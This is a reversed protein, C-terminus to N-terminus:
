HVTTLMKGIVVYQEGYGYDRMKRELGRRGYCRIQQCGNVTAWKELVDLYPLWLDISEGSALFINCVMMQPFPIIQTVLAGVLREEGAEDKGILVWLQMTRHILNNAVDEPTYEGKNYELGEQIFPLVKHWIYPVDEAKIGSWEVSTIGHQTTSFM